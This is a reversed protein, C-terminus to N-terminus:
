TALNLAQTATTLEDQGAGLTVSAQDLPDEAGPLANPDSPALDTVAKEVQLEGSELSKCAQGAYHGSVHFAPPVPGLGGLTSSCNALVGEYRELNTTTSSHPERLGQLGASSSFIVSIGDLAGLMSHKWQVLGKRWHAQAAKIQAASVTTTPTKKGGCASVGLALALCVLTIEAGRRARMGGRLRAYRGEQNHTWLSERVAVTGV